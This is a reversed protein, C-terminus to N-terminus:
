NVFHFWVYKRHQCDHKKLGFVIYSVNFLSNIKIIRIKSM